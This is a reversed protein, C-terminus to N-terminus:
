LKELEYLNFTFYLTTINDQSDLYGEKGMPFVILGNEKVTCYLTGSKKTVWDGVLDQKVHREEGTNDLVKQNFSLLKEEMKYRLALSNSQVKYLEFMADDLFGNEDDYRHMTELTQRDSNLYIRSAYSDKPLGTLSRKQLYQQGNEDRFPGDMIYCYYNYQVNPSQYNRFPRIEFYNFYQRQGDSSKDRYNPIYLWCSTIMNSEYDFASDDKIYIASNDKLFWLGAIWEEESSLPVKDMSPNAIAVYETYGDMLLELAHMPDKLKYEVSHYWDQTKISITLKGSLALKMHFDSNGCLGDIHYIYDPENYNSPVISMVLDSLDGDFEGKMLGVGVHQRFAEPEDFNDYRIHIHDENFSFVPTAHAYAAKTFTGYNEIGVELSSYGKVEESNELAYAIVEHCIVRVKESQLRSVMETESEGCSLMSFLFVPLLLVLSLKRM